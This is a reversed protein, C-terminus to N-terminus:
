ATDGIKLCAQKNSTCNSPLMPKTHQNKKLSGSITSTSHFKISRNTLLSYDHNFLHFLSLNMILSVFGESCNLFHLEHFMRKAQEMYPHSLHQAFTDQSITVGKEPHGERQELSALLFCWSVILSQTSYASSTCCM